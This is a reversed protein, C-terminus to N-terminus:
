IREFKLFCEGEKRYEDLKVDVDEWDIDRTEMLHFFNDGRDIRHEMGLRRLLTLFRDNMGAGEGAELEVVFPVHFLIAMIMGHYSNTVLMDSDRIWALWEEMTYAKHEEDIYVANDVPYPLARRLMYVCVYPRGDNKGDIDFGGFLRRGELITPDPVTVVKDPFGLRSVIDTGSDERVSLRDFGRIFGRAYAAADDPYRVCGFSLAYGLKICGADPFDLYYVSTPCGEGQLTFYPNLVQDSGSIIASYKNEAIYKQMSEVTSFHQTLQLNKQCFTAFRTHKKRISHAFPLLCINAVATKVSCGHKVVDNNKRQKESVFDFVTVEYGKQSLYTQLAYCQLVAGYNKAFHYTIIGVKKMKIKMKRKFTAQYLIELLLPSYRKKATNRPVAVQLEL